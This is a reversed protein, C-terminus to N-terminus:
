SGDNIGWIYCNTVKGWAGLFVLGHSARLAVIEGERIMNMSNIKGSRSKEVQAM